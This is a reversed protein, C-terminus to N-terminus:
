EKEAVKFFPYRKAFESYFKGDFPLEESKYQTRIMTQLAIPFDLKFRREQDHGGTTQGYTPDALMGRYEEIQVRMAKVEEPAREAWANVLADIVDWPGKTQRLKTITDALEIDSGSVIRGNIIQKDDM